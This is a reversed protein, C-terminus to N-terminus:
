TNGGFGFLKLFGGLIAVILGIFVGRSAFEVSSLRKDLNNIKDELRRDMDDIKNELRKSNEEQRAVSIKLDNIDTKVENLKDDLKDLKRDLKDLVEKIDVEITPM